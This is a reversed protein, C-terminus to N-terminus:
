LSMQTCNPPPYRIEEGVRRKKRVHIYGSLGFRVARELKHEAVTLLPPLRVTWKELALVATNRMRIIIRTGRLYRSFALFFFGRHSVVYLNCAVHFKREKKREKHSKNGAKGGGDPIGLCTM